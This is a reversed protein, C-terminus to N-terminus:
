RITLLRTLYNLPFDRFNTVYTSSDDQAFRFVEAVQEALRM